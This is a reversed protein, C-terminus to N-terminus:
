TVYTQHVVTDTFYHLTHQTYFFFFFPLKQLTAIRPPRLCPMGWPGPKAYWPGKQMGHAQLILPITHMILTPTAWLRCVRRLMYADMATMDNM